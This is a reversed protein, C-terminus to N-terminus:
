PEGASASPLARGAPDEFRAALARALAAGRRALEAEDQRVADSCALGDREQSAWGSNFARALRNRADIDAAETDLLGLVQERWAQDERGQCLTRLYHAAGMLFALETLQEPPASTPPPSPPATPEPEATQAATWPTALACVLIVVGIVRM